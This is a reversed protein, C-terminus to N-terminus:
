HKTKKSKKKYKNINANASDPVIDTPREKNKRKNKTNSNKNSNVNGMNGTNRYNGMNGNYGINGINGIYNNNINNNPIYNSNYNVIQNQLSSPQMNQNLQQGSDTRSSIRQKIIIIFIFMLLQMCLNFNFTFWPLIKLTKVKRLIADSDKEDGIDFDSDEKIKNMIKLYNKKKKELKEYLSEMKEFYDDYNYSRYYDFDIDGDLMKKTLELIDYVISMYSGVYYFLVDEVISSIFNIILLVLIFNSICLSSSFHTNYVTGNNRWIRLMFSFIDIIINLLMLIIEFTLISSSFKLLWKTVFLNIILLLASSSSFIILIIELCKASVGRCCIAQNNTVIM